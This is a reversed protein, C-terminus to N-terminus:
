DYTVEAEDRRGCGRVVSAVSGANDIQLSGCRSSGVIFMALTKLPGEGVV